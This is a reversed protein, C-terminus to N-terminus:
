SGWYVTVIIWDSRYESWGVIVHLQGEAKEAIYHWNGNDQCFPRINRMVGDIEDRTVQRGNMRDLAHDSLYPAYTPAQPDTHCNTTATCDFDCRVAPRALGPTAALAPGSLLALGATVAAVAALRLRNPKIM